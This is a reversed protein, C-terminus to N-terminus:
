FLPNVNEIEVSVTSLRRTLVAVGRRGFSEIVVVFEISVSDSREEFIGCRPLPVPSFSIREEGPSARLIKGPIGKM